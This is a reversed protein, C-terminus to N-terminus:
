RPKTTTSISSIKHNKVSYFNGFMDPVWGAVQHCFSTASKDENQTSLPTNFTQSHSIFRVKRQRKRLLRPTVLTVRFLCFSYSPTLPLQWHGIQCFIAWFEVQSRKWNSLNFSLSFTLKCLCLNKAFVDTIECQLWSLDAALNQQWTAAHIM